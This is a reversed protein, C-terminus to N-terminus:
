AEPDASRDSPKQTPQDTIQCLLLLLAMLLKKGIALALLCTNWCPKLGKGLNGGAPMHELMTKVRQWALGWCAHAEVNHKPIHESMHWACAGAPMHKFLKFMHKSMRWMYVLLRLLVFIQM